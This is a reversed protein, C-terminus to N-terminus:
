KSSGKKARKRRYAELGATNPKIGRSARDAAIAKAAKRRSKTELGARQRAITDAIRPPIVIRTAHDGHIHTFFITDGIDKQRFTQVIFTDAGISDESVITQTIENSHVIFPMKRVTWLIREFRDIKQGGERSETGTYKPDDSM